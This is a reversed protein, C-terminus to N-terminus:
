LPRFGVRPLVRGGVASALPWGIVMPTIASGAETATGGCVAQIYLPVFTVTAIMGAGLLSGVLTTVAMVRKRFLPLPLLPEKARREVALFGALTLAALAAFPLALPGRRTAFLLALVAATLLGAGALDLTHHKREVRERFFFILLLASGLGFPVNIYFVWRWSLWKVILGGLVPGILGAVGWVAGFVGQIRAREELDFIDGAITLATPQMAGAGLGQVARFAILQGISRAQGSAVSGLVFLAIGFLLIPKRGYLDALKGYMPVTVTAAIMYATFVWAYHQIGGLDGIVTPMATSVVTMEMAAMFMACLIAAVTLPRNTKPMPLLSLKM